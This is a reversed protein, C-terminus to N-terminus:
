LGGNKGNKRDERRKANIAEKVEPSIGNRKERRIENRKEYRAKKREIRRAEKIEKSVVTKKLKLIRILPPKAIKAPKEHEQRCFFVHEQFSNTDCLSGCFSCRITNRDRKENGKLYGKKAIPFKKGTVTNYSSNDPKGENGQCTVTGNKPLLCLNVGTIPKRGPPNPCNEGAIKKKM